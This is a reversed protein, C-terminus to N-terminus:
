HKSPLHPSALEWRMPPSLCGRSVTGSQIMIPYVHWHYDYAYSWDQEYIGVDVFYQDTALDIRDIFLRLTGTKQLPVTTNDIDRTSVDLYKQGESNSISVSFIATPISRQNEYDIEVCLSDDSKILSKPLLRINTIEVDLSGFRNENIKLKSDSNRLEAPRHPTRKQTQSRMDSVYQGTVIAPEGYAVVTGKRLWLARDCLREVQGVDHSVLVIACGQERMQEIRNLCKKQFSLDGVSLYEDVLLIEPNSHVAISFALRMMMGTSYTRVPNDIFQHLEAFEIIAELRQKIEKRTLGASVAVVFINERGTMDGHMGAGLDLLGGIRGRVQIEGETPAAVGGLLQLLTSKGAGNHGIIGLMEGRSVTFSVHKLAWFQKVPKMRRLGSLAAEMITMPKHAHYQSFWKGLNEVVIADQM